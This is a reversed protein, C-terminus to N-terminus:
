AIEAAFAELKEATQQEGEWRRIADGMFDAQGEKWDDGVFGWCSEGEEWDGAATKFWAQVGWVGDSDVRERFAKQEAELRKRPIEPSAKPNFMDGELDGLNCGDDPLVLVAVPGDIKALELRPDRFCVRIEGGLAFFRAVTATDEMARKAYRWAQRAPLTKRFETYYDKKTKM